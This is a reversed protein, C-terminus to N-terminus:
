EAFGHIRLSVLQDITLNGLGMSRTRQIFEPTVAHIRMALLQKAAPHLYGLAEIERIFEPTVGQIRLSLLSEPTLDFYGLSILERVYELTVNQIGMNMLQNLSRPRLGLANLERVYTMGMDQVAMTYLNRESVGPFGLATMEAAFTPNPLFTFRGAGSGNRLEGAFHTIGAERELDFQVLSSPAEFQSRTLGRFLSLPFRSGSLNGHGTSMTLQVKGDPGFNKLTWEGTVPAPIQAAAAASLLISLVTIRSTM